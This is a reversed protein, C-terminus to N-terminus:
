TLGLQRARAVAEDRGTVGLKRYIARTQSKVTNLSVYRRHAIERLTLMSPLLALVALERETLEDGTAFPRAAPKTRCRLRAALDGALVAVLGPDTCGDLATEAEALLETARAIVGLRLRIDALTVLGYALEIRALGDRSLEVAREVAGAAGDLDGRALRASGKALHAMANAWHRRLGNVESNAIARDALEDSMELQGRQAAALALCGLAHTVALHNGAREAPPMAGRLTRASQEVDGIWFLAIGLVPCGVSRWPPLESADLAQADRAITIAARADGTLYEAICRLMAAAATFTVSEPESAAATAAHEAADIWQPLEDVQGVNIAMWARVLCLRPDARVADDGLADLWGVVVGVEGRQLFSAWHDAILDAATNKDGAMTTHRIAEAIFGHDLLWTAARRHLEAVATPDTRQLELRLLEGFLQHYRYWEGRTDLVVLFHNVREIDALLQASGSASLVADCLPGTLRDLVSSRVLFSRMEDPLGDLVESGLYDVIHRDDGAFGEIFAEPAPHRQLSLAALYMGAVWGETRRHLSALSAEALGLGLRDNLLVAADHADFRLEDARIEVLEGRARWRAIPLPPDSRTVLVLRVNSPLHDVLFAMSRHIDASGIVHYDDLVMLLPQASTVLENVLVPLAGVLPAPGPPRLLELAGAGLSPYATRCAEIVYSWFRLPDADDPELSLWATPVSPRRALWDGVLTTKGWGAPADVLTLKATVARDLLEHLRTRHVVDVRLVPPSLKTVLMQHWADPAPAVPAADGVDDSSTRRQPRQTTM